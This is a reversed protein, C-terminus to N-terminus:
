KINIAVLKALTQGKVNVIDYDLTINKGVIDTPNKLGTDRLVDTKVKVFECCLGTVDKNTKTCHLTFNEWPKDNFVGENKKIGIVNLM